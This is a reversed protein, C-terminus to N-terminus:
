KSLAVAKERPARANVSILTRHRVLHYRGDSLGHLTHHLAQGQLPKDAYEATMRVRRGGPLSLSVRGKIWANVQQAILNDGGPLSVNPFGESDVLVHGISYVAKGHDGPVSVVDHIIQATQNM